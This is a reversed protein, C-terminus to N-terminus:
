GCIDLVKITRPGGTLGVITAEKMKIRRPDIETTGRSGIVIITGQDALLLLDNPLNKNALMELIIDFGDPHSERIRDVYGAESHDFM